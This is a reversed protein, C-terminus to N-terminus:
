HRGQQCEGIKRTRMFFCVMLINSSLLQDDKSSMLYHLAFIFYFLFVSMETSLWKLNNFAYEAEYYQNFNVHIEKVM